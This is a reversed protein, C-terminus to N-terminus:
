KKAASFHGAAAAKSVSIMKKAARHRASQRKKKAAERALQEQRKKWWNQIVKTGGYGAAGMAAAALLGTVIRRNRSTRMWELTKDRYDSKYKELGMANESLNQPNLNYRQVADADPNPIIMGVPRFGTGAAMDAPLAQSPSVGLPTGLGSLTKALPQVCYDETCNSKPPLPIQEPTPNIGLQTEQPAIKPFMVRGIGARMATFLDYPRYAHDRYAQNVRAEAIPRTKPNRLLDAMHDARTVLIPSSTRDSLKGWIKERVEPTDKITKVYEQLLKNQRKFHRNYYMYRQLFPMKAADGQGGEMANRMALFNRNFFGSSTNNALDRLNPDTRPNVSGDAQRKALAYLGVDEKPILGKAADEADRRRIFDLIPSTLFRPDNKDTDYAPFADGGELVQVDNGYPRLMMGHFTGTGSTWEGGQTLKSFNPKFQKFLGQPEGFYTGSDGHQILPRSPDIPDRAKVIENALYLRAPDLGKVREKLVPYAGFADQHLSYLPLSAAAMGAAGAIGNRSIIPRQRKAPTKKKNKDKAKATPSPSTVWPLQLINSEASKERFWQAAGTGNVFALSGSKDMAPTDPNELHRLQMRMWAQGEPTNLLETMSRGSNQMPGMNDLKHQIAQQRMWELSPQYKPTLAFSGAVPKGTAQHAADTAHVIENMVAPPEARAQPPIFAQSNNPGTLNKRMGDLDQNVHEFEHLGVLSRTMAPLYLSRGATAQAVSSRPMGAAQALSGLLGTVPAKEGMFKEDSPLHVVAKGSETNRPSTVASGILPNKVDFPIELKMGREDGFEFPQRARAQAAQFKQDLVANYQKAHEPNGFVNKQVDTIANFRPDGGYNRDIWNEWANSTPNDFNDTAGRNPLQAPRPLVPGPTTKWAGAPVGGVTNPTQPKPPPVHQNTFPKSAPADAIPKPTVSSSQFPSAPFSTPLPPAATKERFWAVAGAKVAGEEKLIERFKDNLMEKEKALHELIEDGTRERQYGMLKGLWSPDESSSLYRRVAVNKLEEPLDRHSDFRLGRGKAQQSRSEHWHPDLLQILSTGKTSLGEAGAPGILLARLKGANYENVARQRERASIGGHFMAYPINNKGLAAAYPALGADIHNSYIIAKKREDSNLTEQLDKFAQQLKASQEFAKEPDKDARFPRTSISVQRLGTLFSNLKALEDRSLPFERDLKWLFGPPIKTRIAKQIKQQASSLPVHVEREDVNVGEPTKSPQYDVKGALLSRLLKENKVVPQEGPKIGRFWNIIGPQVQKHGIFKKEFDEPTIRKNDLLSILNALDSPSNTIPSGTLLLLNKAQQAERSAARAAAGEPNRLRHAEDMILTQPPQTFDKGMGLGTYSMIEPNSGTTFKGVEKEFNGKLAAPVVIGYDDGYVKKAAEAAALASLSKGSGLGHYVLLRNDGGTMRDAIRKQHDQLQVEPLLDAQKGLQGSQEAIHKQMAKTKYEDLMELTSNRLDNPVLNAPEIGWNRLAWGRRATPNKAFPGGHRAKFSLWRKMQREDEEPIRRGSAYRKYWQAWGKPDHESIWEPKWEGLSALRPGQGRYLADYVGLSEMQEPTYDPTFKAALDDPM